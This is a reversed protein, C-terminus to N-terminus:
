LRTKGFLMHSVLGHRPVHGTSYFVRRKIKIAKQADEENPEEKPVKKKGFSHLPYFQSSRTFLFDAM